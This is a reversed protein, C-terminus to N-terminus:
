APTAWMNAFSGSGDQPVLASPSLPVINMFYRHLRSLIRTLIYGVGFLCVVCLLVSSGTGGACLYKGNVSCYPTPLTM